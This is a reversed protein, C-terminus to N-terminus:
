QRQQMRVLSVFLSATLLVDRSCFNISCFQFLGEGGVRVWGESSAWTLDLVRTGHPQCGGACSIFHMKNTVCQQLVM